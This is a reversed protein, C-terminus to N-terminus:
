SPKKPSVNEFRSMLRESVVGVELSLRQIRNRLISHAIIAPIALSLGVLTTILATSIDGALDQPNPTQGHRKITGFARVMGDVTGLLGVMPSVSGILAIYSLRHELKMNEEEGTEQMAEIAQPYGSSLRALGEALVRGLFSEDGRALDYGEQYRKENLHEEFGEILALPAMNNRQAAVINMVLLAVFTFSLFLFAASYKWGLAGVFYGLLSEESGGASSEAENPAEAADAAADEAAPAEGQAWALNAPAIAAAALAAAVVLWALRRQAAGACRLISM